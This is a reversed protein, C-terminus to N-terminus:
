QGVPPKPLMRSIAVLLVVVVLSLASWFLVGSKLGGPGRNTSTVSSSEFTAVHRPATLLRGAVLSLDYSPAAARENGYALEFGTTEATKFILRVVPYTVQVSGLAIAPNDGNDTEIWLTNTRLRDSLALECIEREGPEPRRNWAAVALEREQTRGEPTTISEYVRFRRSFLPTSSALTLRQLPLGAHPLTVRWRSVSPRKADAELVPALALARALAPEERVYPIQNGARMIRLDAYGSQAGALAAPDLELEQVGSESLRLARQLTWGQTDLPAGTLPVDPLPTASLSARPQYHPTAELAGATVPTARALRMDSFFAALDYRPSDAQANGTLLRYSGPSPALFLLDTSHLAATVASIGLPPSDGNHIHLLIERAPMSFDSPLDLELQSRAEAGELAVRYLTGTAVVRERVTVDQAERVAITVRRMFLPDATELGLRALPLNRGDLEITLLTESAFEERRTIRAPTSVPAPSPEATWVRTLQAGTFSVPRNRYNDLTVRVFAASKRNLSLRLQEAGFQRFVPVAAGLSQWAKGDDSIEVHAAKLFFPAATELLISDLKDATGTEVVLQTMGDTLPVTFSRPKFTAPTKRETRVLEGNRYLLYPIEREGADVLRVDALGPQAADFTAPALTLRTLGAAEIAVSQRHAWETPVVAALGRGAAGLLLAAIVFKVRLPNKM